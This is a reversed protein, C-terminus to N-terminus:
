VKDKEYVKKSHIIFVYGISLILGFFIGIILHNTLSVRNDKISILNINYDVFSYENTKLSHNINKLSSLVVYQYSGRIIDDINKLGQIADNARTELLYTFSSDFDDLAPYALTNKRNEINSIEQRILDVGLNFLSGEYGTFNSILMNSNLVEINNNVIESINIDSNLKEAIKLNENLITLSNQKSQEYLIKNQRTHYDNQNVIDELNLIIDNRMKDLSYEANSLNATSITILDNQLSRQSNFLINEIFQKHFDPTDASRLSINLNNTNRDEDVQLSTLYFDKLNKKNDTLSDHIINSDKLKGRFSKLLLIAGSEEVDKTKILFKSLTEGLDDKRLEYDYINKIYKDISISNQQRLRDSYEQVLITQDNQVVKSPKIKHLETLLDNLDASLEIEDRMSVTINSTYDIKQNVNIIYFIVTVISTFILIFFKNRLVLEILGFFSLEKEKM